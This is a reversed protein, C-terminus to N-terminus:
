RRRPRSRELNSPTVSGDRVAVSNVNLCRTGLCREGCKAVLGGALSHVVRRGAIM